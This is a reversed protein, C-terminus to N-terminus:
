MYMIYVARVRAYGPSCPAMVKGFKKSYRTM